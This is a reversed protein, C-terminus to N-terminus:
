VLSAMLLMLEEETNFSHLVIRLREKGRPVTPYLIPRIDLNADFLKRSLERVEENGPVIIAQIPTLSQLIEINDQSLPLRIKQESFYKILGKLNKREEMLGPFIQYSSSIVAIATEPLSTTYIFTRSFNILYNRLTESGLVIAGHCGVAKGFTHIRAFCKKELALKQVLGEGREGIVGTAHAEDVILNAKYKECLSAVIDLPAMDGDM